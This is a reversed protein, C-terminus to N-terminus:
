LSSLSIGFLTNTDLSSTCMNLVRADAVSLDVNTFQVTPTNCVEIQLYAIWVEMTIALYHYNRNFNPSGARPYWTINLNCFGDYKDYTTNCYTGIFILMPSSNVTM